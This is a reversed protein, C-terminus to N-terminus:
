RAQPVPAQRLRQRRGVSSHAAQSVAADCQAKAVEGSAVLPSCARVVCSVYQGHSKWFAAPDCAPAGSCDEDLANGPLEAAGPHVSADTDDCDEGATFGDGDEDRQIFEFAGIDPLSIGDQDGDQPRLTGDHDEPPVAPGTVGTDVCPSAATLRYDGSAANAFLPDASINANLGTQDPIDGAYDTLSNGHVDNGAIRFTHDDIGHIAIGTSGATIVNNMLLTTLSDKGTLHDNTDVQVGTPCGAFTNNVVSTSFLPQAPGPEADPLTFALGVGVPSSEFVNNTVSIDVSQPFSFNFPGHSIAASVGSGLFLNSDVKLSINNGSSYHAGDFLRSALTVGDERFRSRSITARAGTGVDFNTDTSLSVGGHDFDCDTVSLNLLSTISSIGAGTFHVNDAVLAARYGNLYAITVGALESNRLSVNQNGGGSRFMGIDTQPAIVGDLDARFTSRSESFSMGAGSINVSKMVLHFGPDFLDGASAYVGAGQLDANEISVRVDLSSADGTAVVTISGGEMTVDHISIRIPPDGAFTDVWVNLIRLTLNSLEFEAAHAPDGLNITSDISGGSALSPAELFTSARGSGVVRCNVPFSLSERYTGPLIHIDCPNLVWDMAEQIGDFPHEPSGDELPDSVSADNPGPDNAADDDVIAIVPISAQAARTQFFGAGFVCATTAALAFLRTMSHM